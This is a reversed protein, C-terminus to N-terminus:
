ISSYFKSKTILFFMLKFLIQQFM